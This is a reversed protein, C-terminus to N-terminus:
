CNSRWVRRVGSRAAAAADVPAYGFSVMAQWLAVLLAIPVLGLLLDTTVARVNM